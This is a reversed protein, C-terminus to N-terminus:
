GEESEPIAEVVLRLYTDCCRHAPWSLRIQEDFFELLAVDLRDPARGIVTAKAGEGGRVQIGHYTVIDGTKFLRM